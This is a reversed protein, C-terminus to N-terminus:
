MVVCDDNAKRRVNNIRDSRMQHLNDRVEQNIGGSKMVAQQRKKMFYAQHKTPAEGSSRSRHQVADVWITDEGYHWAKWTKTDFDSGRYHPRRTTNSQNFGSASSFGGTSAGYSHNYQVNSHTPRTEERTKMETLMNYAETILIFQQEVEKRRHPPNLDPHFKLALQRYAKKIDKLSASRSVNLVRYFDTM